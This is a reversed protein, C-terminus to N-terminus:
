YSGRTLPDVEVDVQVESFAQLASSACSKQYCGLNVANCLSILPPTYRQHHTKTAHDPNNSTGANAAGKPFQMSETRAAANSHLHPRRFSRSAALSEDVREDENDLSYLEEFFAKKKRVREEEDAM